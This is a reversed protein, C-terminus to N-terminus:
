VAAANGRQRLGPLRFAWGSWRHRRPSAPRRNGLTAEARERRYAMEASAFEQSILSM